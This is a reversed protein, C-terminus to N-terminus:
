KSTAVTFHDHLCFLKEFRKSIEFRNSKVQPRMYVHELIALNWNNGKWRNLKELIFSIFMCIFSTLVDPSIGKWWYILSILVILSIGKWREMIWNRMWLNKSKCDFVGGSARKLRLRLGKVKWYNNVIILFIFPFNSPIFAAMDSWRQLMAKQWLLYLLFQFMNFKIFSKTSILTTFFKKFTTKIVIFFITATSKTVSKRVVM